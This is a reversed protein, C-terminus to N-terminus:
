CPKLYVSLEQKTKSHQPYFEPDPGHKPLCEVVLDYGWGMLMANQLVIKLLPNQSTKTLGSFLM